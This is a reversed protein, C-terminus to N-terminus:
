NPAERKHIEKPFLSDQLIEWQRRSGPILGRAWVKGAFEGTGVRGSFMVFECRPMALISVGKGIFTLRGMNKCAPSGQGEVLYNWNLLGILQKRQNVDLQVADLNRSQGSPAVFHAEITSVHEMEPVPNYNRIFEDASVVSVSSAKVAEVNGAKDSSGYWITHRGLPLTFSREDASDLEAVSSVARDITFGIFNIFSTTATSIEPDAATVLLPTFTTIVIAGNTGEYKPDFVSLHTVPSVVDAVKAAVARSSAFLVALAVFVVRFRVIREADIRM